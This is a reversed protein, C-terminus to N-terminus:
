LAEVAAPSVANPPVFDEGVSFYLADDDRILAYDAIEGGNATFVRVADIMLASSVESLLSPMDSPLVMVKGSLAGNKFVTVRKGSGDSGSGGGGNHSASSSGQAQAAGAKGGAGPDISNTPVSNSSYSSGIEDPTTVHMERPLLQRFINLWKVLDDRSDAYLYLSRTRTVVGFSLPRAKSPYVCSTCMGGLIVATATGLDFWGLEKAGKKRAYAESGVDPSNYYSVRGNPEVVFWCRRWSKVRQGQKTLFGQHLVSM